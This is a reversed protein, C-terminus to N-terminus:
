SVSEPRRPDFGVGPRGAAIWRQRAAEIGWIAGWVFFLNRWHDVDIQIAQVMLGLMAPVIVQAHDRWPHDEFMQRLGIWITVGVLLFFLIGGIWGNNAFAGVYSNHPDLDFYHRFGLPGFGWFRDLLMPLSRLQNGFRGTEGADYEQTAATRSSFFEATEPTALLAGVAVAVLAFSALTMKVIRRKMLPDKTTTYGAGLMLAVGLITNVYSGRSFSLFMGLFTVLLVITSGVVRQTRGFVLLHLLYIIPLVIYSGLNNPDKFTGTARGAHKFMGEAGLGAVDFYGLIGAIAAIFCALAYGNLCVDLRRTTRNGFFLAFFLGTLVLYASQYQYLASDPDDWHPALALFGCLNFGILLFGFVLFSRHVTFGGFFWLPLAIFSAFDYPSPEIFAIAGCSLFIFAFVDVVRQYDLTRAGVAREVAAPQDLSHTLTM